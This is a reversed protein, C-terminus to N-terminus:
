DERDLGVDREVRTGRDLGVDREARTGRDRGVDREVRTGRDRGVDREARTGRDREFITRLARASAAPDDASWFDDVQGDFVVTEIEVPLLERVRAVREADPARLMLVVLDPEFARIVSADAPIEHDEGGHTVSSGGAIEILDTAFNHGGAIRIPDDSVIALVRPRDTPHSEGAILSLPRAISFYLAETEDAGVLAPGVSRLLAFLDELDHPAFEVVRTGARAHVLEFGPTETQSPLFLWGPAAAEAEALALRPRDALAAPHGAPGGIAVIREAVGLAILFRSAPPSLSILDAREGRSMPAHEDAAVPPKEAESFLRASTVGPPPPAHDMGGDCAATIALGIWAVVLRHITAGGKRRSRGSGRPRGSM